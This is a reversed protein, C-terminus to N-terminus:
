TPPNRSTVCVGVLFFGKFTSLEGHVGWHVNGTLYNKSSNPRFVCQSSTARVTAAGQPGKGAAWIHCDVSTECFETQKRNPRKKNVWLIM